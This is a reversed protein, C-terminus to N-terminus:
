SATRIHRMGFPSKLEQYDGRHVSQMSSFLVSRRAVRRGTLQLIVHTEDIGQCLNREADSSGFDSTSSGLWRRHFARVGLWSLDVWEAGNETALALRAPSKAAEEFLESRTGTSATSAQVWRLLTPV